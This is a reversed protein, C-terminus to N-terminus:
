GIPIILTVETTDESTWSKMFIDGGLSEAIKRAVYLGIGQGEKNKANSGRWFSKFVYACEEESLVNGKNKVSIIVDEDQRGMRLSIGAGSGYKVANDLLQSIVKYIGDKDSTLLPNNECVIDFPIHLLEMRSAYDKKVMDKLEKLYFTTIVAKHDVDVKASSDMIEKVLVEVKDVNQKIKAATEADKVDPKKDDHYIGREIAEAYLKINSLPTKIGHAISIILTQKEKEMANINKDKLNMEDKLMNMGWIYKGFLRSKSEPIGEDLRGKAIKEPYESLTNFPKVMLRYGAVTVTIIIIYSIILVAATVTRTFRIDTTYYVIRLFGCLSNDTGKIPCIMDSAYPDMMLGEESASMDKIDIYDVRDPVARKEYERRYADLDITVANGNAVATRAEAIIRNIVVIKMGNENDYHRNILPFIILSVALFFLTILALISVTRKM